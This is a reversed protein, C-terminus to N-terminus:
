INEVFNLEKMEDLVEEPCVSGKIYHTGNRLINDSFVWETIKKINVTKSVKKSTTDKTTENTM